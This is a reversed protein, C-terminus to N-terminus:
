MTDRPVKRRDILSKILLGINPSLISSVRFATWRSLFPEKYYRSAIIRISDIKRYAQAADLSAAAAIRRLLEDRAEREEDLQPQSRLWFYFLDERGNIGASRAISEPTLRYKSVYDPLLVFSGSPSIQALRIMFQADVAHGVVDESSLGIQKARDARVIFCDNPPQCWLASRLPREQAGSLSPLRRDRLNWRSTYDKLVSGDLAVIQQLGYICVAEPYRELGALLLDFGGDRFLDDDHLLAVHTGSAHALLRNVNRAQGLRRENRHYRIAVDSPAAISSAVAAADDSPSDDGILIEFPRRAQRFCSEVAQRLLDPRNFTPICVSVRFDM